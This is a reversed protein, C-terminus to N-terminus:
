AYRSEILNVLGDCAAVDHKYECVTAKGNVYFVGTAESYGADGAACACVADAAEQRDDPTLFVDLVAWFWNIL